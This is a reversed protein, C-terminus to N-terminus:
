IFVGSVTYPNFQGCCCVFLLLYIVLLSLCPPGLGLNVLVASCVGKVELQHVRARLCWNAIKHEVLEFGLLGAGVMPGEAGGFWGGGNGGVELIGEALGSHCAVYGDGLEGLFSLAPPGSSM